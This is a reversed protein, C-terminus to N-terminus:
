SAHRRSFFREVADRLNVVVHFTDAVQEADPAGRRIGDAYAGARDRTVIQVGPHTHVPLVAGPPITYRAFEFIEGPASDPLADGLVEREVQPAPAPTAGSTGDQRATVPSWGFWTVLTLILVIFAPGISKTRM